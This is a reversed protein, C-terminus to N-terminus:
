HVALSYGNNPTVSNGGSDTVRVYFNNAFTYATTGSLVGAASLTFGSPIAGGIAQWTYPPTGGTAVLQQSYPSGVTGAPLPGPTVTLPSNGLVIVKGSMGLEDHIICYYNYVGASTFTIRARTFGSPTQPLGLQDQSAPGILGSSFCTAGAVGCGVGNPITGDVSSFHPDPTGGPIAPAPPEVGGPPLFTVTHPEDASLNTWELTDGVNVTVTQPLFRMLAVYQKGGGTASEEGTMIVERAPLLPTPDNDQLLAQAQSSAQSSYFTQDHPYPTAPPLVHVVGTMDTHILCVLKYDGANQFTVTYSSLPCDDDPSGNPQLSDVCVLGSNVCQTGGAYSISSTSGPPLAPIGPPTTPTGGQNGGACGFTSGPGTFQFNPRTVATTPFSGPVASAEPQILFSVTHAEGTQSTWTVSDGADIWIENPLFAMAQNSADSSQAGLSVNWSAQAKAAQPLFVLAAALFFLTFLSRVSRPSYMKEGRSKAEACSNM